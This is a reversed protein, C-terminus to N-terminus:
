RVIEHKTHRLSVVEQLTDGKLLVVHGTRCSLVVFSGDRAMAVQAAVQEAPLQKSVM